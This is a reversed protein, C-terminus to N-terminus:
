QSQWGARSDDLLDPIGVGHDEGMWEEVETM